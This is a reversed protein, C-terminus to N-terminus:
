RSEPPELVDLIDQRLEDLTNNYFDIRNLRAALWPHNLSREIWYSFDNTQLQLRLRSNIFHYHLSQHGLHRIGEALETLTWAPSGSPVTVERAECFYFAEFAPREAAQPHEKLYDSVIDALIGRLAELSVIERLDVIALQEALAAESCATLAWQAFDSSFSTYHHAELSQFTHYFISAQPCSRLSKALEGLTQVPEAGIRILYSAAMFQFPQDARKAELSATMTSSIPGDEGHFPKDRTAFATRSTLHLVSGLLCGRNDFHGSASAPGIRRAIWKCGRAKPESHLGFQARPFLAPYAM